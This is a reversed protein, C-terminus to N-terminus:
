VTSKLALKFAQAIVRLKKSPRGANKMASLWQVFPSLFAKLHPVVGTYWSLVGLVQRLSKLHFAKGQEVLALFALLPPLKDPQPQM